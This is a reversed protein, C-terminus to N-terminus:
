DNSGKWLAFYPMMRFANVGCRDSPRDQRAIWGGLVYSAGRYGMHGSQRGSKWTYKGEWVTSRGSRGDVMGGARAPDMGPMTVAVIMDQDEDANAMGPRIPLMFAPPVAV